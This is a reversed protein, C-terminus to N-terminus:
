CASPDAECHAIAARLQTAAKFLQPDKIGKLLTECRAYDSTKFLSFAMAYRVADDELLGLRAARGHLAAVDEFQEMDVMIGIRQRFKAAQDDVQANMFLAREYAGARRYLEAAELIFRPESDAARQLLDAAVLPKGADSWARSLQGIVELDEPFLLRATELYHIAQEHQGNRRLGQGLALYDTALPQTRSIYANAREIAEQNLGLELLIFVQQREFDLNEPFLKAGEVLADLADSKRDMRWLAQSKMVHLEPITDASAGANKVSQVVMKWNELGWYAQAFYVYIMRDTKGAGLAGHLADLAVQHQGDKLALLAQLTHFDAAQDGLTKTDVSSLVSRARDFHGDQYLRSALAVHDVGDGAPVGAVYSGGVLGLLLATIQILRKM